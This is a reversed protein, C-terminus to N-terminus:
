AFGLSKALRPWNESHPSPHVDVKKIYSRDGDRQVAADLLAILGVARPEVGEWIPDGPEVHLYMTSGRFYWRLGRANMHAVLARLWAKCEGAWTDRELAELMLWEDDSLDRHESLLLKFEPPPWPARPFAEAPLNINLTLPQGNVVAAVSLTKTDSM